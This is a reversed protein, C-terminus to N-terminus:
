ETREPERSLYLIEHAIEALKRIEPDVDRAYWDPPPGYRKMADSLSDMLNAWLISSHGRLEGRLSPRALSLGYQGFLREAREGLDALRALIEDRERRTFIPEGATDAEALRRAAAKSFRRAEDLVGALSIAHPASLHGATMGGSASERM